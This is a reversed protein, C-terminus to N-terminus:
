QKIMLQQGAKINNDTLNNWEKLQQVTTNYVRAIGYLTEKPQVTHLYTIREKPTDAALGDNPPFYNKSTIPHYIKDNSASLLKSEDTVKDLSPQRYNKAARLFAEYSITHPPTSRKQQLYLIEGAAAQENMKMRNKEYLKQLRMGHQQAIKWMSEGEKVIHTPTDGVKKKKAFYIRDGPEFFDGEEMENFSLIENINIAYIEAIEKPTARKESVICPVGNFSGKEQFEVTASHSVPTSVAQQQSSPPSNLSQTITNPHQIKDFEYLKYEEILRILIEPYKPNTAYGAAKLGHAWAKYDTRDLSFLGAYRPRSTLFDSHDRYSHEVSSYIRFCEGKADDDYTYGPGNWEKHCKIGFHNKAETALVSKGCNSEHIGQALTISAPIGARLMEEQAIASYTQIYQIIDPSPSSANQAQASCGLVSTILAVLLRFGGLPYSTNM